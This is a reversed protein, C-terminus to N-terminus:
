RHDYVLNLELDPQNELVWLELLAMMLDDAGTITEYHEHKSSAKPLPCTGDFFIKVAQQAFHDARELYYEMGTLKYCALMLFIADAMSGPYLTISLDPETYLYRSAADLVLKKYGPMKVQQYRLFCLMAVQADTAKGYGTAWVATDTWPGSTLRQLTHVDAGAVFGKGPPSFDHALSLYVKDTKFARQRMKQALAKPVKGAGDWLDVALSLNSEPWMINIRSPTTCCPIAGTEKSSTREFHDVVTEIAKLYVPDKTKQYAYAWTAIYFGGHRPYGNGVGTGHSAWKAHRSFEGSHEHIQHDWLGRAFKTCAQPALVFSREWLVWPGYFEHPGDGRGAVKDEKFGWSLHEGWAMLGTVPSQCHEFFWKLTKDAQKAYRADGTIKSLAYLIQYLDQDHFVNSGTTARDGNRIGKINPPREGPLSLTRRDLTSAILPSHVSGYKDRGHELLTDAYAKVLELYNDWNRTTAPGSTYKEAAAPNGSTAFFQCTLGVILLTMANKM